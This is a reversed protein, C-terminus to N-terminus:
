AGKAIPWDKRAIWDSWSGPYFRPMGLGAHVFSVISQAATVGSGCYFIVQGAPTNGIKTEFQRKLEDVVKLTGDPSINDAFPASLANPIHGAVPDITENEGRFRDASRADLLLVTPDSSMKLVEEASVFLTDDFRGRFGARGNQRIGSQVPLGSKEWLPFGGDLVAVAAHGAWKLLWWLRAAAMQGVSGDYVVVQADNSIGWRSLTETLADKDPLPHRGTQSPTAPGALDHDLDAYVAGAIHAKLYDNRGQQKDMLQSRCDVFVWHAEGLHRSAEECSIVTEFAMQELEGQSCSNKGPQM